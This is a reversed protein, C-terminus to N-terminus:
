RRECHKRAKLSALVIHARAFLHAITAATDPFRKTDCVTPQPPWVIRVVAPMSDPEVLEVSLQDHNIQRIETAAHAAFAPFPLADPHAPVLRIL